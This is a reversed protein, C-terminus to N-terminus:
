QFTHKKSSGGACLMVLLALLGLTAISVVLTVHGGSNLILHNSKEKEQTSDHVSYVAGSSRKSLQKEESATGDKIHSIVTSPISLSYPSLQRVEHM